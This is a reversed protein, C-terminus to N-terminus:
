GAWSGRWVPPDWGMFVGPKNQDPNGDLGLNGVRARSSATPCHADLNQSHPEVILAQMLYHLYDSFCERPMCLWLLRSM